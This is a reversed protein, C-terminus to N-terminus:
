WDELLPVQTTGSALRPKRDPLAESDNRRGVLIWDKIVASGDAIWEIEEETCRSKVDLTYCEHPPQPLVDNKM